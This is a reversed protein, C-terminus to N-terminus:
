LCGYLRRPENLAVQLSYKRRKALRARERRAQVKGPSAKRGPVSKLAALKVGTDRRADCSRLHTWKSKQIQKSSRAKGVSGKRKSVLSISFTCFPCRLAAGFPHSEQERNLTMALLAVTVSM